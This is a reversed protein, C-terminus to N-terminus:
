DKGSEAQAVLERDVLRAGLCVGQARCGPCSAPEVRHVWGFELHWCAGCAACAFNVERAAVVAHLEEAGCAPCTDFAPFIGNTDRM